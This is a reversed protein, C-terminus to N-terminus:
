GFEAVLRQKMEELEDSSPINSKDWMIEKPLWWVPGKGNNGYEGLDGSKRPFIHWHLHVDGNGLCEYNIKDANFAKKVAEAVVVMEQMYKTRYDIDLDFLEVVHQKCIFLSYGYFHQNWGLILYGTEFEKVFWPNEGRKIQEIVKCMDCSM